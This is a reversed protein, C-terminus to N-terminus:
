KISSKVFILMTICMIDVFITDYITGQCLSVIQRVNGQIVIRKTDTLLDTSPRGLFISNWYQTSVRQLVNNLSKDFCVILLVM